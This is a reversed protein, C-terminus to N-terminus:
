EWLQENDNETDHVVVCITNSAADDIHLNDGGAEGGAGGSKAPINKNIPPKDDGAGAIEPSTDDSSPPAASSAEDMSDDGGGSVHLENAASAGESTSAAGFNDDGIDGGSVDQSIEFDTDDEDSSIMSAVELWDSESKEASSNWAVTKEREVVILRSDRKMEDDQNAAFTDLKIKSDHRDSMLQRYGTEPDSDAREKDRETNLQSSWFYEVEAQRLRVAENYIEVTTSQPFEGHPVRQRLANRTTAIEEASLDDSYELAERMAKRQRLEILQAEQSYYQLTFYSDKHLAKHISAGLSAIKDYTKLTNDKLTNYVLEYVRYNNSEDMKFMKFYADKMAQTVVTCTLIVKTFDERSRAKTAGRVAADAGNYWSESYAFLPRWREVFSYEVGITSMVSSYDNLAHMYSALTKNHWREEEEIFEMHTSVALHTEGTIEIANVRTILALLTLRTTEDYTNLKNKITEVSAMLSKAQRQIRRAEDVCGRWANSLEAYVEKALQVEYFIRAALDLVKEPTIEGTSVRELLKGLVHCRYGGEIQMTSCLQTNYAIVEKLNTADLDDSRRENDSLSLVVEGMTYYTSVLVVPALKVPEILLALVSQLIDTFLREREHFIADKDELVAVLRDTTAANQARLRAYARKKAEIQESIAEAAEDYREEGFLANLAFNEASADSDSDDLVKDSLGSQPLPPPALRQKMKQVKSQAANIQSRLARQELAQRNFTKQEGELEAIQAQLKRAEETEKPRDARPILSETVPTLKGEPKDDASAVIFLSLYQRLLANIQRRDPAAGGTFLERLYDFSEDVSDGGNTAGRNQVYTKFPDIDGIAVAIGTTAHWDSYEIAADYLYTLMERKLVDYKSELDPLGLNLMKAAVLKMQNITSHLAVDEALQKDFDRENVVWQARLVLADAVDNTTGSVKDYADKVASDDMLGKARELLAESNIQAGYAEIARITLEEFEAFAERELELIAAKAIINRVAEAQETEYPYMTAEPEKDMVVNFQQLYNLWEANKAIIANKRKEWDMILNEVDKNALAREETASDMFDIKIKKPLLKMVVNSNTAFLTVDNTNDTLKMFDDLAKEGMEKIDTKFKARSKATNTKFDSGFMPNVPFGGFSRPPYTDHKPETRYTSENVFTVSTASSDKAFPTTKRATKFHSTDRFLNEAYSFASYTWRQDANFNLARLEINKERGSYRWFDAVKLVAVERLQDPYLVMNRNSKKCRAIVGNVIADPLWNATALVYTVCYPTDVVKINPTCRCIDVGDGTYEKYERIKKCDGCITAHPNKERLTVRIGHREDATALLENNEHYSASLADPFPAIVLWATFKQQSTGDPPPYNVNHMFTRNQPLILPLETERSSNRVLQGNTSKTLDNRAYAAPDTIGLVRLKRTLSKIPPFLGWSVDSDIFRNHKDTIVANLITEAFSVAHSNIAAESSAQHLWGLADDVTQIPCDITATNRRTVDKVPLVQKASQVCKPVDIIAVMLNSFAVLDKVTRCKKILNADYLTLTDIITQPANDDEDPIALLDAFVGNVAM